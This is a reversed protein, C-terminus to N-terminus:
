TQEEIWDSIDHDSSPLNLIDMAKEGKFSQKVKVPINQHGKNGTFNDKKYSKQMKIPINHPLQKEEEEVGFKNFIKSNVKPKQM